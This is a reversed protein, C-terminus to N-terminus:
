KGGGIREVLARAILTKSEIGPIAKLAIQEKRFLEVTLELGSCLDDICGILTEQLGVAEDREGEMRTLDARLERITKNKGIVQGELHELYEGETMGLFNATTVHDNSM